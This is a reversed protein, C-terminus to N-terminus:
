RGIQMYFPLLYRFIAIPYTISCLQNFSLIFQNISVGENKSRHEFTNSETIPLADIDCRIMIVPGSDSYNFVAAPAHDGILKITDANTHETLFDRILKSTHEEQGSLEPNMHLEKRFKILSDLM